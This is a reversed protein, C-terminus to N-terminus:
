KNLYRDQQEPHHLDWLPRPGHIPPIQAFNYLPPPSSTAWELTWAEWPNPGAINGRKRSRLMNWFLFVSSGALLFSGLTSIMNLLGWHPMAPYTWVRRTMGAIGLMHQVFFTFNFGVVTTWFHWTGLRESLMRGSMKPWWYYVGAFIAFMTGGFLVYHIHAVIVYTDTVQWDMPVVAFIVGSLGGITFEILFATAFKMATTFRISGNWM